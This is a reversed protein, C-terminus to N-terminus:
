AKTAGEPGEETSTAVFAERTYERAFALGMAARVVILGTSLALSCALLTEDAAYRGFVEIFAVQGTGLGAISPLMAVVILVPVSALLYPIPVDIDFARCCAGILGLFCLAFLVRFFALGALMPIPTTRAADLISLRRIRDLPGLPISTRLGVFGLVIAAIAGVAVGAQVAPADTGLATIGAVMMLLQVGVDFLAILAVIGTAEAVTRGTRRSLLIGLGAAGIAYHILALPYSACKIRAATGRTFGSHDADAPLLRFLCESEIWLAAAAFLLLAPVMVYVADATVVAAVDRLGIRDFVWWLAATTVAFPAVWRTVTRARSL